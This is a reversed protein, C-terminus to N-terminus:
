LSRLLILGVFVLLLFLWAAVALRTARRARRAEWWTRPRVRQLWFTAMTALNVCIINVLALVFADLALDARGCGLMMGTVVLPPLLAVAVMVGVVVTPVGTTFALTGAAGAALALVVDAIGVRTRAAISPSTPDVDLLAGIVVSLLLATTVGILITRLARRWLAGDALTAGLALAVNPGLLPAIVMAGIVVATDSRILGVAAVITSLVVTAVYVPTAAATRAVDEHLEERSIRDLVRTLSGAGVGARKPAPAAVAPMTAEVPLVVLRFGEQLGYRQMLRDSLKEMHTSAILVRATAQGGQAPTSWAAIAPLDAVLEAPEASEGPPLMVEVLRLAM